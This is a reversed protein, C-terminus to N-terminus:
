HHGNQSTGNQMLKAAKHPLQAPLQLQALSQIVAHQVPKALEANGPRSVLTAQWGAAQAADAERAIDTAFTIQEPEMGIALAIEKYATAEVQM